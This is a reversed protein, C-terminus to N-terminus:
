DRRWLSVEEISKQHRLTQTRAPSAPDCSSRSQPEKVLSQHAKRACLLSVMDLPRGPLSRWGRRSPAILRVPDAPKGTGCDRQDPSAQEGQRIRHQCRCHGFSSPGTIRRINAPDRQIHDGGDDRDRDCHESGVQRVQRGAVIGKLTAAVPARAGSPRVLTNRSVRIEGTPRTCPSPRGSLPSTEGAPDRWFIDLSECSARHAPERVATSRQDTKDKHGGEAYSRARCVM